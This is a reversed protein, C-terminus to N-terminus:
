PKLIDILRTALEAMAGLFQTRNAQAEKVMELHVQWLAQSIAADKEPVCVQTDGDFAIRTLARLKVQGSLKKTEHDYKVGELDDSTYTVVELSSIDAAAKGLATALERTFDKLSDALSTREQGLAFAVADYGTDSALQAEAPSEEETETEPPEVLTPTIQSAAITSRGTPTEDPAAVPLRVAPDGIIIYGRADNNATWMRALERPDYPPPPDWGIRDLETVLETSLAAYRSDFYEMASGVPHGKLLREIASEFVTIQESQRAGLFSTGWAREVHGIVALAGGKPRNLLAQSLAAVFPREAIVERRKKFAQKSFEDYLPTGAGYCAFFFAILGMLNADGTFDDGAVYFDQPIEGQWANPGHWDQCLLAGQHPIQRKKPDDHPFQMGHSATFLFAPPQGEGMLRLLRAKTAEDRLVADMQWDPYRAKLREYLPRVLHDASLRTARDDPNAVGFFTAQPALRVEGSEAEVVSRAYNAYADLDAFDLRGVAYQVDLQYQFRYPVTEPSGVILLYYPVKEPDAPDALKADFQALFRRATWDPQYGTREEYIQFHETQSQRLRLLPTLAEKISPTLSDPTGFIIGWGAQALNTPDVGEKVILTGLTPPLEQLQAELAAIEDADAEPDKSAIEAQLRAREARVKKDRDRNRRQELADLNDPKEDEINLIHNAFQEGTMPELGYAGTAGNVGNFYLLDSM